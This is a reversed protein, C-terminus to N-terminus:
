EEGGISIDCRQLWEESFGLMMEEMTDVMGPIAALEEMLGAYAGEEAETIEPMELVNGDNAISWVAFQLGIDDPSLEDDTEEDVCEAFALLDGSELYGIQYTSGSSPTAASAEICIVYPSFVITEGPELTIVEGDLVMLDQEGTEIPSFVLGPPVEFVIEEGSRNIIVVEVIEGQTGGGTSEILEIVLDGSNIRQGLTTNDLSADVAINELSGSSDSSGPEEAMIDPQDAPQLDIGAEAGSEDIWQSHNADLSEGDVGLFRQFRQTGSCALGAAIVLVIFLLIPKREKIM